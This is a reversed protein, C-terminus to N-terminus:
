CILLQRNKMCYIPFNTTLNLIQLFFYAVSFKYDYFGHGIDYCLRKFHCTFTVFEDVCSVLAVMLVLKRFEDTQNAANGPGYLSFGPGGVALFEPGGELRM